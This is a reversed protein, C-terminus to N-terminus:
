AVEPPARPGGAPPSPELYTGVVTTPADHTDSSAYTLRTSRAPSTGPLGPIPFVPQSVETRLIEGGSSSQTLAPQTWAAPAVAATGAVVLTGSLAVVWALKGRKM